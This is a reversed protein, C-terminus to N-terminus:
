TTPQIQLLSASLSVLKTHRPQASLDSHGIATAEEAEHLNVIDNSYMLRRTLRLYM